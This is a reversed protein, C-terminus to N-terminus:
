QVMEQSNSWHNDPGVSAPEMQSQRAIHPARFLPTRREGRQGTEQHEITITGETTGGRGGTGDIAARDDDPDGSFMPRTAGGGAELVSGGIKAGAKAGQYSRILASAHFPNILAQSVNTINGATEPSFGARELGPSLAAQWAMSAPTASGILGAGALATKGVGLWTPNAYTAQAQTRLDSAASSVSSVATRGGQEMYSRLYRAAQAATHGLPEGPVVIGGEAMAAM